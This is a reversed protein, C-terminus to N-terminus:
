RYHCRRTPASASGDSDMNKQRHRTQPLPTHTRECERRQGRKCRATNNHRAAVHPHARVGTAIWTQIQRHQQTQRRRTLASASGDSDMNIQRHRTQPLSTHTRECERRQGRKSRPTILGHCRRTPASASGVSDVSPDPPSSDTAAVHPHARVGSATWAQILPHHTRPLSTHTRECERQQGRKSRPTFSDTVAVHPHARVGTATWTQMQPHQTQCRRTPASASGDSALM